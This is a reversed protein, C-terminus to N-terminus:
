QHGTTVTTVAGFNWHHARWLTTTTHRLTHLFHIAPTLRLSSAASNGETTRAWHEVSTCVNSRLGRPGKRDKGRDPFSSDLARRTTSTAPSGAKTKLMKCNLMALLLISTGLHVTDNRPHAEMWYPHGDGLLPAKLLHSKQGTAM